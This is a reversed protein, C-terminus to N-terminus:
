ENAIRTWTNGGDSTEFSQKNPVDWISAHTADTAHVGGLDGVIPSAIPKWHKGGDTTLLLTGAKGVVWCIKDSTASGAILDVTVGSKQDKWSKGGDTSREIKGADGLRWVHKEAPAVVYKPNSQAVKELDRVRNALAIEAQGQAPTTGVPSAASQVEVTESVSPPVVVVEQNQEKAAATPPNPKQPAAQPKPSPPAPAAGQTRANADAARANATMDFGTISSPSTGGVIGAAGAAPANTKRKDLEQDKELALHNSSEAPQTKQGAATRSPAMEKKERPVVLDTKSEEKALPAPQPSMPANKADFAPTQQRNLAIQQNVADKLRRTRVENAGVWVLLAAALAGIPLIWRLSPRRSLRVTEKPKVAAPPAAAPRGGSPAAAATVLRDFRGPPLMALGRHVPEKQGRRGRWEPTSVSETQEVFALTEQCRACTAIHEKWQAMEELSLTREHYASLIEADPCVSDPSANSLHRTLAREFQKERDETAM